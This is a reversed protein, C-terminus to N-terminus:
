APTLLQDVTEQDAGPFEYCDLEEASVWKFANVQLPSLENTLLECDYVSLHVTYNRYARKVTRVRQGIKIKAGLRYEFERILAAEDGEGEEVKGGPFEWLLPLTAMPRRQTILYKGDRVIIAAVVSIINADM